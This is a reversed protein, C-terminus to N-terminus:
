AVGGSLARFALVATAVLALLVVIWGSKYASPIDLGIGADWLLHRIGNLLHYCLSFSFVYFGACVVWHLISGGATAQLHAYHDPGDALVLVWGILLVGGLALLLGTIRHLISLSSTLQKKYIQLHPSIPRQGAM